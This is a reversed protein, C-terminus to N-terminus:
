QSRQRRRRRSLYARWDGRRHFINTANEDKQTYKSINALIGVALLNSILSSGGYSIFPLPIGTLPLLATMAAINILAQFSIWSTIGLAVLRSFTCPANRAIKLGRYALYLFLIILLITRILGLEEAIIAFISDTAAEPLYNYKQRSAGFGLGWLGGSGIALLAQNVHYGIGGPDAGPNMFIMFRAMRYPATKILVFIGALAAGGMLVIHSFQAGAAFFMVASIIGITTMTGMDPQLIILLSVFSLLVVFPITGSLADKIDKGKKEFWAALYFILALKISESPQFTLTGIKIWRRGGGHEFGIVPLFVAILLIINLFLFIPAVKKWFNYNIRLAILFLFFGIALSGIQHYLYYTSSGTALYSMVVSASSIMIIGFLALIFIIIILIYDPFHKKSYHKVRM